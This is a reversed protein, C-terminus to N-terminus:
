MWHSQANPSEALSLKKEKFQEVCQTISSEPALYVKIGAAKLASFAKPGCNGTLVADVKLDAIKQATQIGAGSPSNLNQSNEVYSFEMSDPDIIIFGAARGFRQDITSELTNGTSSIAIKM